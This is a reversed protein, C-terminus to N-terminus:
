RGTALENSGQVLGFYFDERREQFIQYQSVTLLERIDNEWNVDARRVAQIYEFETRAGRLANSLDLNHTRNLREIRRAQEGDLNLVDKMWDTQLESWARYDYSQSEGFKISNVCASMLVICAGIILLKNGLRWNM